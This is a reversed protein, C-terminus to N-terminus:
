DEPWGQAGVLPVFVVAGLDTEEFTVEDRRYISVLRQDHHSGHPLVLRGGIALQDLLPKPPRPAAAAVCIAEYPAGAAWGLTGDACHVHVNAFGLRALRETASAALVPLREVTDVDRAIAGLIAAAYGSGTGIELVREHGDLHLGQVTLAVVLPQSITQDCGIPLPMDAYALRRAEDPVFDERRVREFAALVLPDTIGRARLHDLMRQRDDDLSV